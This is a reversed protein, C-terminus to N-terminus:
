DEGQPAVKAGLMEQVRRLAEAEDPADEIEVFSEAAPATTDRVVASVRPAIGFIEALAARLEDQREEVKRPGVRQGPPFAIELTEGDYATVTASELVARLIAQRSAQLHEMLSPWGRRLMAVDVNGTTAPASPEVSPPAARPVWEGAAPKADAEAPETGESNPRSPGAEAASATRGPREEAANTAKSARKPSAPPSASPAGDPAAPRSGEPASAKSAAAPPSATGRAAGGAEVGASADIGGLRELREIRSMLGAPQPDTEPMTARVLALELSLRPSTTWRMDTQAALLLSIVRALEAPTFKSAQARLHDYEDAAVDLLDDQGPATQVLLLNRFHGLTEATVTRLDQGDQVLRNV